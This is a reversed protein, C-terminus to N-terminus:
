NSNNTVSDMKGIFEEITASTVAAMLLRRLVAIDHVSEIRGRIDEPVSAKCSLVDLISEIKGEAKGAEREEQMIEKFRMYREEMKRDSKIQMISTQIRHILEDDSETAISNNSIYQIFEVLEKPEDDYNNGKTSLFVTRIGDDYNYSTNEKFTHRVTYRFKGMNFPDFDCIFIVYTDPLNKYEVGTELVEMDMHSHYYRARKPLHERAVQMEVDFRTNNEDKAYVDLRVGRYEPNYIINKERSVEVKAIPIGLVRELVLRCTETDTTLVASFMFDDKFELEQLTKGM